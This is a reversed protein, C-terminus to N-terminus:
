NASHFKSINGNSSWLVADDEKKSVTPDCCTNKGICALVGIYKGLSFEGFYTHWGLLAM